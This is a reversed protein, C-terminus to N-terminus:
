FETDIPQNTGEKTRTIDQGTSDVQLMAILISIVRIYTFVRYLGDIIKRDIM